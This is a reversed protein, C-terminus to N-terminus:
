VAVRHRHFARGRDISEACGGPIAARWQELLSLYDATLQDVTQRSENWQQLQDARATELDLRELKSEANLANQLRDGIEALQTYLLASECRDKERPSSSSSFRSAPRRLMTRIASQITMFLPRDASATRM